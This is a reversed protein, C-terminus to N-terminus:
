EDLVLDVLKNFTTNQKEQIRREALRKAKEGGGQYYRQIWPAFLLVGDMPSYLSSFKVLGFVLGGVLTFSNAGERWEGIYCQGLGPLLYSMVEVKGPRKRHADKTFEDFYALVTRADLSDNMLALEYFLQRSEDFNEAGYECFGALFLLRRHQSQNYVTDVSYLESKALQYNQQLLITFAKNLTIENRLSDNQSAFFARDYFLEAQPYNQMQFYCDAINKFLIDQQDQGLFIARNFEVLAQSFDGSKQLSGAYSVIFDTNQAQLYAFLFSCIGIIYIKRKM